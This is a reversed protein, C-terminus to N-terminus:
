LWESIAVLIRNQRKLITSIRSYFNTCFIISNRENGMHNDGKADKKAESNKAKDGDERTKHDGGGAESSSYRKDRNRRERDEDDDKSLRVENISLPKAGPVLAKLSDTSVSFAPTADTSSIITGWRRKKPISKPDVQEVSAQNEQM